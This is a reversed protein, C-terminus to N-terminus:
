KGTWQGERGVFLSVPHFSYFGGIGERGVFLSIPLFSYFGEIERKKESLSSRWANISPGTKLLALAFSPAHLFVLATRNNGGESGGGSLQM